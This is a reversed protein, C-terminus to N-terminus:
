SDPLHELTALVPLHDSGLYPGAYAEVARFADSHWIYDIRILPPLLPPLGRAASVPWSTGLGTGAERFSDHMFAALRQYTASSASTNFDGAVIYPYPEARLREILYTIQDNRTRDDFGFVVNLYFNNAHLGFRPKQRAPWALHVNYVAVPQGNIDLLTRLPMRKGPTPFDFYTQELIPFRSLTFNSSWHNIDTQITQYPYIDLLEPLRHRAFASYVEQLLLIDVPHDRLGAILSTHDSNTGWINLTMIRLQDGSEAAPPPKPVFYPAFWVGGVVALPLLSLAAARARALLVLALLPLLPLFLLHAFSNLLSLWWFRDGYLLRLALYALMGLLYLGATVTLLHRTFVTLRNAM